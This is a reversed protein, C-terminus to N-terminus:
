RATCAKKDSRKETEQEAYSIAMATLLFIVTFIKKSEILITVKRTIILFDIQATCGNHELYLDHIIYM